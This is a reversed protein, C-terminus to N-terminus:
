CDGEGKYNILDIAGREEPRTYIIEAEVNFKLFAEKIARGVAEGEKALAIVTPGSGSLAVGYAGAKKAEEVVQYFGPILQSRYPQHLYDEMGIQLYEYKKLCFAAILFSVRNVNLVARSFPIEAPLIQRSDATKLQFKPIAVVVEVEPVPLKLYKVKDRDFGSVVVGGLLAPAVNDPHGELETALRLLEDKPLPNGLYANAAVLGGVIAAASSGLGRALPVRNKLTLKLNRPTKGLREFIKTIAVYVLNNKDRSILEAGDGFVEIELEKTSPGLSVENYFSLAMGVADFGPGLNASTAPILVCVM